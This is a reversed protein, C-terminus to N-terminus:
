SAAFAVDEGTVARWASALKTALEELTGDNDIVVDARTRKDQLPMQAGIRADAEAASSGDRAMLRARQVKPAVAVLLTKGMMGELQNEFLLPVEYVVVAHHSLVALSELALASVRPHVIANLDHRADANVFAIAGLKKRDLSGDALLVEPGFREVISGLAATGPLVAERALADADVLPIGARALMRGVTSKGSAIGGTLGVLLM